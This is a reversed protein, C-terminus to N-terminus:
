VSATKASAKACDSLCYKKAPGIVYRCTHACNNAPAAGGSSAAGAGHMTVTAWISDWQGTSFLRVLILMFGLWMVATQKGTM